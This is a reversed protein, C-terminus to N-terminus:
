DGFAPDPHRPPLSDRMEDSSSTSRQTPDALSSQGRLDALPLGDSEFLARIEEPSMGLGTAARQGAAINADSAYRLMSLGDPDPDDPCHGAERTAESSTLCFVERLFYPTSGPGGSYPVAATDYEPLGIIEAESSPEGSAAEDDAEGSEVERGALEPSTDAAPPAAPADRSAEAAAEPEIPTDEAEVPVPPTLPPSVLVLNIVDPRSPAGAERPVLLLGMILVGNVSLALTWSLARRSVAERAPRVAAQGLFLEWVAGATTGDNSSGARRHSDPIIVIRYTKHAGSSACAQVPLM